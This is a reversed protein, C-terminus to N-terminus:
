FASALGGIEPTAELVTVKVGAAALEMAATLGTFGAGIVVVHKM